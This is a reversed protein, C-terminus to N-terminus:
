RCRDFRSCVHTSIFTFYDITSIPLCIVRYL